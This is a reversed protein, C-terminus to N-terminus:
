AGSCHRPLRDAGTKPSQGGPELVPAPRLCCRPALHGWAYRRWPQQPRGSLGLSCGLEMDQFSASCPTSSPM